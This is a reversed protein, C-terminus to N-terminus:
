RGYRHWGAPMEERLEPGGRGDDGTIRKPYGKKGRSDLSVKATERGPHKEGPGIGAAARGSYFFSFM